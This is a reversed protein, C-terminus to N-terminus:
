EYTLDGRASRQSRKRRTSRMSGGLLLAVGCLSIAGLVDSLPPPAVLETPATAHTANTDTATSSSAPPSFLAMLAAEVRAAIAAHGADNPFFWDGPGLWTQRGVPGHYPLAPRDFEYLKQLDVYVGGVGQCMATLAAGMQNNAADWPQWPGLCVFRAAPNTDRLLHLIAAYDQDFVTANEGIDNTGLEILYSDASPPPTAELTVVTRPVTVGYRALPPLLTVGSASAVLSLYDRQQTTAGAGATLSDGLAFLTQSALSSTITYPAESPRPAAHVSVGCSAFLLALLLAAFAALFYSRKMRVGGGM